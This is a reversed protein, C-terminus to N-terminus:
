KGGEWRRLVKLGQDTTRYRQKSSRPKDPIAMELLGAELLPRIYQDRFKTRNARQFLAMIEILSRESECHTLIQVQDQSLGLKTGVEGRVGHVRQTTPWFTATFFGNAMFQPEPCKHRRAEEASNAFAVLERAFSSSLAEKYELM